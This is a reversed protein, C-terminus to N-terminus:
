RFHVAGVRWQAATNDVQQLTAKREVRPLPGGNFVHQQV